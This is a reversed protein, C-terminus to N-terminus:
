LSNARQFPRFAIAYTHPPWEYDKDFWFSCTYFVRVYVNICIKYLEVNGLHFFCHCRFLYLQDVDHLGHNKMKNEFCPLCIKKKTRHTYWKMWCYFIQLIKAVDNKAGNRNTNREFAGNSFFPTNLPLNKNNKLEDDPFRWEIEWSTLHHQTWVICVYM